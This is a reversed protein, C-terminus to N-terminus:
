LHIPSSPHTFAFVRLCVYIFLYKKFSEEVADGKDQTEVSGNLGLPVSRWYISQSSRHLCFEKTGLCQPAAVASNLSVQSCQHLNKSVKVLIYGSDTASNKM